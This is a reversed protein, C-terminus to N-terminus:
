IFTIRTSSILPCFCVRNSLSFLFFVKIFNNCLFPFRHADQEDNQFTIAMTFRHADQEDNQFTIAM